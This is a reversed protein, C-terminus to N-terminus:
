AEVLMAAKASVVIEGAAAAIRSVAPVVYHVEVVVFQRGAAGSPAFSVDVRVGEPQLLGAAVAAAHPDAAPDVALVRAVERATHTVGIQAHVVVGVQVLALVVVFVVPLVLVFEVTSQGRERNM